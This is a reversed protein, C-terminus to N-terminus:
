FLNEFLFVANMGAHCEYVKAVRDCPSLDAGLNKCTNDVETAREKGIVPDLLRHLAESNGEGKENTFHFMDSMCKILCKQKENFNAFDQARIQDEEALSAGVKFRCVTRLGSLLAKQVFSIDGSQAAVFTVCFLLAIITKMRFCNSNDKWRSIM